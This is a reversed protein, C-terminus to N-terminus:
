RQVVQGTQYIWTEELRWSPVDKPPFSLVLRDDQVRGNLVEKCNGIPAPAMFTGDARIVFVSHELRCKRNSSTSALVIADEGPLEFTHSIRPLGNGGPSTAVVNGNVSIKYRGAGAKILEVTAFRSQLAVKGSSLRETLIDEYIDLQHNAAQPRNRGQELAAEMAVRTRSGVVGDASLGSDRQFNKIAARTKPGMAGDIAGPDYGLLTLKEQLDRTSARSAEAPFACVLVALAVTALLGAKRLSM